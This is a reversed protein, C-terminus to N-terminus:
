KTDKFHWEAPLSFVIEVAWVANTRVKSIGALALLSKAYREIESATELGHLIYNEPSRLIDINLNAGYEKQIERKNHKLAAFFLKGGVSGYRLFFDKCSM